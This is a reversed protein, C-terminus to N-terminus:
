IAQIKLLTASVLHGVSSGWNWGVGFLLPTLGLSSAPAPHAFAEKQLQERRNDQVQSM